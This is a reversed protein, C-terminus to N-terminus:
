DRSTSAGVGLAGLFLAGALAVAASRQNQKAAEILAEQHLRWCADCVPGEAGINAQARAVEAKCGVCTTTASNQTRAAELNAATVSLLKHTLTQLEYSDFWTGHENCLDLDLDFRRVRELTAGCVPCAPNAERPKLAKSANASARNALDAVTRQPRAVLMRASENDLWIGGCRGCGSLEVGEVRVTDLRRRCHPCKREHRAAVGADTVQVVNNIVQVPVPVTVERPPAQNVADCFRCTEPFSASALLAGCHHCTAM